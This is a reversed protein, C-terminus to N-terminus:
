HDEIDNTIICFLISFVLSIAIFLLHFLTNGTALESPSFEGVVLGLVVMMLYHGVRYPRINRVLVKVLASKWRSVLTLILIFIAILFLGEINSPEFTGPVYQYSPDLIRYYLELICPSAGTWFIVSYILFAGVLSKVRGLNKARFYLFAVVLVLGIEIRMGLSVQCTDLPGFFTLFRYLIRNGPYLYNLVTGKGMTIVLDLIPAVLLIIFCPLIVRAVKEINERTLISAILTIGLAVIVYFLYYHYFASGCKEFSYRTSAIEVLNRLTVASFFTVVFYIFPCESSELSSIIKALLDSLKKICNM